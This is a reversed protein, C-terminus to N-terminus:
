LDNNFASTKHSHTHTNVSNLLKEIVPGNLLFFNNNKSGVKCIHHSFTNWTFKKHIGSSRILSNITIGLYPLNKLLKIAIKATM